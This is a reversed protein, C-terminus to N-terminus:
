YDIEPFVARLKAIAPNSKYMADYKERPQYPQGETAHVEVKLAWSLFEHGTEERLAGLIQPKFPELEEKQYINTLVIDFTNQDQFVLKRGQMAACLKANDSHADIHNQWLRELTEQDLVIPERKPKVVDAPDIEKVTGDPTANTSLLRM